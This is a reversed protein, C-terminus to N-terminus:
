PKTAETNTWYEAVEGKRRLKVLGSFIATDALFVEENNTFLTCDGSAIGMALAKRYAVFDKQNFPRSVRDFSNRNQCGFWTNGTIRRTGSAYSEREAQAQKRKARRYEQEGQEYERVAQAQEEAATRARPTRPMILGILFLVGFIGLGWKWASRKKKTPRARSAASQVRSGCESCFGAQARLEKGCNTCHM